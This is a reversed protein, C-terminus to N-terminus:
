PYGSTKLIPCKNQCVNTEYHMQGLNNEDIGQSHYIDRKSRMQGKM